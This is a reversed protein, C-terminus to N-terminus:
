LIKRVVKNVKEINKQECYVSFLDNSLVKKSIARIIPSLQYINKVSGNKMLVKIGQYKLDPEKKLTEQMDVIVYGKKIGTRQCIKEEIKESGLKALEKIRALESEKIRLSNIVYARKFLRRQFIRDVMDKSYEGSGRLKSFFEIDNYKNFDSMDDISSQLARLLMASAIRTAHHYYVASYMHDRAVFMDEIADLGKELICLDGENIALTGIIRDIHILGYIAGTYHSDRTLYDMRDADIESSIISQLYGRKYDGAILAGVNKPKVGHKELIAPIKGGNEFITEKGTILDRTHELTPKKMAGELTHSLPPNGLDHLLGAAELLSVEGESLNLNKAIKRALYSMGLGHAFRTHTAGPFVLKGMGLSSVWALRQVEPQDILDGQIPSIDIFGHIPDIISKM